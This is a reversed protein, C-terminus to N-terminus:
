RVDRYWAPQSEGRSIQSRGLHLQAGDAILAKARLSIDKIREEKKLYLIKVRNPPLKEAFEAFALEVGRRAEKGIESFVGTDNALVGIRIQEASYANAGGLQSLIVGFIIFLFHKRMNFCMLIFTKTM